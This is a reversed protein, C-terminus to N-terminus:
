PLPAPLIYFPGLPEGERELELRVAASQELSEQIARLSEDSSRVPQGGVGRVVAGEPLDLLTGLRIGLVRGPSAEEAARDAPEQSAITNLAEFFLGPSQIRRLNPTDSDLELGTRRDAEYSSAEASDRSLRLTLESGPFSLRVHREGIEAVFGNDFADGARVSISKGTVSEIVAISKGDGIFLVGSLRYDGEQGAVSGIEILSLLAAIAATSACRMAFNRM